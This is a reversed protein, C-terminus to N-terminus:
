TMGWRRRLWWESSLLILLFLFIWIISWLPIQRREIIESPALTDLKGQIREMSKENWESIPIFEGQSMEAIKKLLDFRPRGDETERYPFTVLFNKRHKGLTRGALHAEAELRYSGEKTPTFAATYEGEETKPSAEIPIEEGDPGIVRLRLTADAAPTFDDKLVQVQFDMKEGPGRSGGVPRIKVQEFSPEQALWRVAQRILKLHNQPSENKGVTIFNWRWFDDSMLALTRGKGFRGVTLLPSGGGAGESAATLLTEGKSQSVRNFSTLAPMKKWLEENARPDSLLRTIPHARGPGTLTGRLSVGTQYGDKGGLEVPLVERLPSKGYGGSDFSRTGGLMAFGGGERIFDKVKELYLVNFYFRHSFNDFILLDFNKLEELFIEDIPFPILSLRSEPVDVSDTPTRLFVFSVLDIFPDQKLAMRLFRYNWSPSGSLTLIRIKDRQVDIKFERQNNQTIQEGVQHPLSLTFSHPGIEKPTYTLTVQQEFPDGNITLTRTSILRSGRNFYLPINKGALGYAQITLDVKIERGRFAFEPVSLDAINLDMYGQSKGVGVTFIPVSFSASAELTTTKGNAIGDSFLLIAAPSGAKQEAERM